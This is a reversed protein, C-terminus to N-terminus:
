ILSFLLFNDAVGFAYSVECSLLFVVAVAGCNEYYGDMIKLVVLSYFYLLLTDRWTMAVWLAWNSM